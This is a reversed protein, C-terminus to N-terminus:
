SLFAKMHCAVLPWRVIGHCAGHLVRGQQYLFQFSRPELSIVELMDYPRRRM